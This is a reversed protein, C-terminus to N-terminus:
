STIHQIHSSFEIFSGALVKHVVDREPPKVRSRAGSRVIPVSEHLWVYNYTIVAYEVALRKARAM